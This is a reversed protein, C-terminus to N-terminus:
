ESVCVCVCVRVCVCWAHVRVCACLRVIARVFAHVCVLCTSMRTRTHTICAHSTGSASLGSKALEAVLPRERASRGRM